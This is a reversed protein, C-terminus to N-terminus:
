TLWDAVLEPEPEAEPLLMLNSWVALKFAAAAADYLVLLLLPLVPSYKAAISHGLKFPALALQLVLV